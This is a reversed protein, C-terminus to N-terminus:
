IDADGEVVQLADVKEMNKCINKAFQPFRDKGLGSDVYLLRGQSSSPSKQLSSSTDITTPLV